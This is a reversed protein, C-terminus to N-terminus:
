EKEEFINMKVLLVRAEKNMTCALASQFARMASEHNGAEKHLRAQTAHLLAYDRLGGKKELGELEALAEDRSGARFLAVARNLRVLASPNMQLLADYFRVIREWNRPTRCHENAIAAELHWESLVETRMAAVLAADAQALQAADYSASEIEDFAALGGDRAGRAGFRALHLHFMALLAWREPTESGAEMVCRLLRVAEDCLDRRISAEGGSAFYGENFLLYIAECVSQLREVAGAGVPMTMEVRGERIARKARVIRQAVTEEAVLFAAAIERTSFGSVVKLTLAVRAEPPISPHCCLLMMALTDDMGAAAAGAGMGEFFRQVAPELASWGAERRLRDRAFNRAVTHLWAGPEAPVGRYPWTQLARLMAEQAAEEALALHRSGLARTLAATIRGSEHRFLHAVLGDVSV